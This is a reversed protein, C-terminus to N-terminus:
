HRAEAGPHARRAMKREDEGLKTGMLTNDRVFQKMSTVEGDRMNLILKRNGIYFLASYFLFFQKSVKLINLVRVV